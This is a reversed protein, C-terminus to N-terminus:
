PWRLILFLNASQRGMKGCSNPLPCLRHFLTIGVQAMEEISHPPIRVAQSKWARERARALEM